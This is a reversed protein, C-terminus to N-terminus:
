PVERVILGNLLDRAFAEKGMLRTVQNNFGCSALKYTHLSSDGVHWRIRLPDNAFHVFINM